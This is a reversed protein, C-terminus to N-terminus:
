LTIKRTHDIGQFLFSWASHLAQVVLDGEDQRLLDFFARACPSKRSFESICPPARAAALERLRAHM